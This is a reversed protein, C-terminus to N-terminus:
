GLLRRPNLLQTHDKPLVSPTGVLTSVQAEAMLPALTAGHSALGTLVMLHNPQLPALQTNSSDKRFSRLDNISIPGSVPIRDRLAVRTGQHVALVEPKAQRTLTTFRNLLQKTADGVSSIPGGEPEYTSGLLYIKEALPILTIDGILPTAVMEATRITLSQGLIKKLPITHLLPAAAGTALLTVEAAAIIQGKLDLMNLRGDTASFASIRTQLETALLNPRWLGAHHYFYRDKAGELYDTTLQECLKAMKSQQQTNQSQWILSTPELPELHHLAFYNAAIALESTANRVSSLQPYVNMVPQRSAGVHSPDVVVIPAIGFRHLSAQLSQGAVGGGLIQITPRHLRQGQWPRPDAAYLLERKQGYGPRKEVQFGCARLGQKVIGAVSYSSITAGPQAHNRLASFIFPNFLEPNHSPKFGDLYFADVRADLRPLATMADEFILTLRVQPSFWVTYWGELNPPYVSILRQGGPISLAAHLKEFDHRSPPAREIAIYHLQASSQTAQWEAVTQLLNHGFGFGLELIVFFDCANGREALHHQKPFVFRKELSPDGHGWYSDQHEDSFPLGGQWRLAPPNARYSKTINPGLHLRAIPIRLGSAGLVQTFPQSM